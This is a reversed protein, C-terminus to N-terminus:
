MHQDSEIYSRQVSGCISGPRPGLLRTLLNLNWKETRGRRTSLDHQLADPNSESGVYCPFPTGEVSYCADDAAVFDSLALEIKIRNNTQISDKESPYSISCSPKHM